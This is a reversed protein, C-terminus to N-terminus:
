GAAARHPIDNGPEAAVPTSEGLLSRACDLISDRVPRQTWGLLTRAKETSYESRQGLEGIISRVSPDFLSIFRILADPAQRSPVKSAQQGLEDRLIAAIDAMWLFPGTGLLRQGAAAPETMARLHLGVLDRVDVLAFGLRPIAPVAGSLLREVTQLSFSRHSGLLPGIIAGPNVVALRDTAGVSDAYDWASREAITKSRAYPTLKPNRPDSWDDETLPRSPAPAGVNRVAASSSTVVVRRAGADFAARLIRLTGDRAPVILDDPNKPQVPPFPSAVHLVYDCGTVAAKWEEDRLLDAAFVRLQDTEGAAPFLSRLDRERSLDRMTTHVTYGDNLLERICWQALYGTGGTVLITERAHQADM